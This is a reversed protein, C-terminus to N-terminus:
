NCIKLEHRALRCSPNYNIRGDAILQAALASLTTTKGSGPVASVMLLGGTYQAIRSQEPRLNM